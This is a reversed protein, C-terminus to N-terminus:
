PRREQSAPLHQENERHTYTHTHTHTKRSINGTLFLAWMQLGYMVWRLLYYLKISLIHFLVLIHLKLCLTWQSIGHLGNYTLLSTQTAQLSKWGLHFVKKFSTVVSNLATTKSSQLSHQTFYKTLHLFNTAALLSVPIRQMVVNRDVIFVMYSHPGM